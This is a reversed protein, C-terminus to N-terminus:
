EKDAPDDRLPWRTFEGRFLRRVWDPAVIWMVALACVVGVPFKLCLSFAASKSWPMAMAYGAIVTLGSAVGLGAWPVPLRYEAQASWMVGAAILAFGASFAMAAGLPGFKRILLVNMGVNTAAGLAWWGVAPTLNKKLVLGTNALGFIGYFFIGGAIWPVYIVGKHFRPDALLRIIDGGAAAVGLWVVLLGAAIRAWLRGIQARAEEESTEYARSMEPYWTLTIASNVMIGITGLGTAFSYVGLPGAGLWLEILWRDASNMLWFMPATAAGTLGLRLIEWRYSRPYGSREWLLGLPPLGAIATGVAVGGATGVLLAWADRRWFLALAISLVAAVAGGGVISGAIRAYAARLRQRTTAMVNVVALFVGITIMIALTGPLELRDSAFWWALGAALSVFGASWISFRWCFREVNSSDEGTGSFFFRAYSM